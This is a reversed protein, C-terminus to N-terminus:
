SRTPSYKGQRLLEERCQFTIFRSVVFGPLVSYDKIRSEQIGPNWILLDHGDGNWSRFQVPSLSQIQGGDDGAQRNRKLVEHIHQEPAGLDCHLIGLLFM